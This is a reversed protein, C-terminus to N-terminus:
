RGGNAGGGAVIFNFSIDDVFPKIGRSVTGNPWNVLYPVRGWRYPSIISLFFLYTLTFSLSLSLIFLLITLSLCL